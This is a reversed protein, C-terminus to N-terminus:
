ALLAVKIGIICNNNNCKDNMGFVSNSKHFMIHSFIASEVPKLVVDTHIKWKGKVRVTNWGVPTGVLVYSWIVSVRNGCKRLTQAARNTNLLLSTLTMPLMQIWWLLFGKWPLSSHPNQFVQLLLVNIHKFKWIHRMYRIVM